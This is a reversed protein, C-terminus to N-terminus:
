EEEESEDLVEYCDYVMGDEPACDLQEFFYDKDEESGFGFKVTVTIM